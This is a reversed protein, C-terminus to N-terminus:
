IILTIVEYPKKDEALIVSQAVQSYHSCQAAKPLGTTGSTSMLAAVTTKALHEDDFTIWGSEASELLVKWSRFESSEYTTSTDFMFINEPSIGVSEAAGQMNKWSEEETIIYKVESLTLLHTLESTTYHPNSGAFRGGAGIVALFVLPYNIQRKNASSGCALIPVTLSLAIRFLSVFRM